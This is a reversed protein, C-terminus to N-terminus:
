MYVSKSRAPSDLEWIKCLFYLFSNTEVFNKIGHLFLVATVNRFHSMLRWCIFSVSPTTHGSGRPDPDKLLIRIPIGVTRPDPDWFSFINV